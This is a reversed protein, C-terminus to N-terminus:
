NLGELGVDLLDEYNFEIGNNYQFQVTKGNCKGKYIKGEKFSSEPAGSIEYKKEGSNYILLIKSGIWNTSFGYQQSLESQPIWEGDFSPLLDYKSPQKQTNKYDKNLYGEETILGISILDNPNFYWISNEKKFRIDNYTGTANESESFSTPMDWIFYENATDYQSLRFQYVSEGNRQKVDYFCLGQIDALARLDSVTIWEAYLRSERFADNSDYIGFYTESGLWDSPMEYTVGNHYDLYRDVIIFTSQKFLSENFWDAYTTTFIDRLLDETFSNKTYQVEAIDLPSTNDFLNYCEQRTSQRPVGKYTWNITENMNEDNDTFTILSDATCYFYIPYTNEYPYGKLRLYGDFEGTGPETYLAYLDVYSADYGIYIYRYDEQLCFGALTSLGQSYQDRTIIKNKKLQKILPIDNNKTTLFLANCSLKIADGRLFSTTESDITDILGIQKAFELSTGYTFDGTSESYGLGRLLCTIYEERTIPQNSGFTTATTGSILKNAYAYAVYHDAGFSVDTFPHKVTSAVADQEKGLLQILLVVADEKTLESDLNYNAKGDASTSSSELLGLTNLTEASGKPNNCHVTAFSTIVMSSLLFCILVLSRFTQKM